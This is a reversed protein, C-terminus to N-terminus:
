RGSRIRARTDTYYANRRSRRRLPTTSIQHPRLSPCPTTLERKRRSNHSFDGLSLLTSTRKRRPHEPVHGHDHPKTVPMEGEDLHDLRRLHDDPTAPNATTLPIWTLSIRAVDYTRVPFGCFLLTYFLSSIFFCMSKIFTVGPCFTERRTGHASRLRFLTISWPWSLTDCFQKSFFFRGKFKLLPDSLGLFVPTNLPQSPSDTCITNSSAKDSYSHISVKAAIFLANAPIRDRSRCLLMPMNPM